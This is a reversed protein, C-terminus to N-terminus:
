LAKLASIFQEKHAGLSAEIDNFSGEKDFTDQGFPIAINPEVINMKVWGLIDKLHKTANAGADVYGYSVITAPKEKWEDFLYDIANKLPAPISRNYEATLFIFGDADAVKEQWAKGEKTQTPMYAPPIAADLLPLSIEKLDLVEIQFGSQAATNVLWDAISESVRGQRTTGVILKIKKM